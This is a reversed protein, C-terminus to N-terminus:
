TSAVNNINKIACSVDLRWPYLSIKTKGRTGISARMVKGISCGKLNKEEVSCDETM